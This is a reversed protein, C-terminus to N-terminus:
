EIGGTCNWGAGSERNLDGDEKIEESSSTDHTLSRAVICIGDAEQLYM